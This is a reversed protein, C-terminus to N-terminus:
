KIKSEQKIRFLFDVLNASSSQFNSKWWRKEKMTKTCFTYLHKKVNETKSSSQGLQYTEKKELQFCMFSVQLFFFLLFLINKEFMENQINKRKSKFSIEFKFSYFFKFFLMKNRNTQRIKIEQWNQIKFCRLLIMKKKKAQNATVHNLKEYNSLRCVYKIQNQNENQKTKM